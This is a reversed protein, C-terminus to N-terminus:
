ALRDWTFNCSCMLTPLARLFASPSKISCYYRVQGRPLRAGKSLAAYSWRSILNTSFSLLFWRATVDGSFTVSFRGTVKLSATYLHEIRNALLSVQLSNLRDSNTAGAKRGWVAKDPHYIFDRFSTEWTESFEEQDVEQLVVHPRVSYSESTCSCASLYSQCYKCIEHHRLTTFRAQQQCPHAQFPTYHFM